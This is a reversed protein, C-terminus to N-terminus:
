KKVKVKKDANAEAAEISKQAENMVRQATTDPINFLKAIAAQGLLIVGEPTRVGRSKLTIAREDTVGWLQTLDYGDDSSITVDQPISSGKAAAKLMEFDSQVNSQAIPAPPTPTEGTEILSGAPAAPPTPLPGPQNVASLQSSGTVFRVRRDLEAHKRLMKFHDGHSKYGYSQGQVAILHDGVNGDVLEVEVMDSSSAAAM